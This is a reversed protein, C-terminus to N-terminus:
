AIYSTLLCNRWQKPQTNVPTLTIKDVSYTVTSSRESSAVLREAPRIDVKAHGCNENGNVRSSIIMTNERDLTFVTGHPVDDSISLSFNVFYNDRAGGPSADVVVGDYAAAAGTLALLLLM